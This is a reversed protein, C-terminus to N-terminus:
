LAKRLLSVLDSATVPRPNTACCPDQIAAAALEELRKTLQSRELGAQSLTEPLQLQKRVRRLAFVLARASSLGCLSALEGYAASAAPFNFELVHPLLIGNLRGHSLHFAGGLAHSLAHCIGLGGHDFAIGAMTAAQHIAGRVSKDGAYSLPLLKLCSRFACGALATSFVSANKAAVAEVCHSLLDMGGDAILSKPLQELLSDDLIALQPRLQEEVLPHKIGEHTLIAFSTVESGTGSTTPIAVFRASSRGMSLIGKACDIVSGGGLAVLLDPQLEQLIKVGRAVLNLDPDPQVDGFSRGEGGCLRLIEDAKGSQTFYQDTILLTRKAKLERLVNLAGTGFCLKTPLDFYQLQM